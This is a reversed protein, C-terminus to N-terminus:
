GEGTVLEHIQERSVFALLRSKEVDRIRKCSGSISQVSAVWTGDDFDPNRRFLEIEFGGTGAFRLRLYCKTVVAPIKVPEWFTERLYVSNRELLWLPSYIRFGDDVRLEKEFRQIKSIRYVKGLLTQPQWRLGSLETRYYHRCKVVISPKGCPSQPFM